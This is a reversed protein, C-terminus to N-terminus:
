PKECKKIFAELQELLFTAERSRHERDFRNLAVPGADRLWQLPQLMWRPDFPFRAILLRVESKATGHTTPHEAKYWDLHLPKPVHRLLARDRGHDALREPSTWSKPLM